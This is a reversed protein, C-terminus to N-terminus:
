PLGFGGPARFHHTSFFIGLIMLSNYGIHLIISPTLSGTMGRALSFVVGVILILFVHNWAHWYEPIHLGAFLVATAVVATRMGVAREILAFLLGRFVLEEVVPAVGIAFAGIAYSATTSNFLKELPFGQTDPRMSLALGVAVALVGGGAFYGAVQRATPKQWGLSKWFPQQHLLRALLFLFGLIFVYFVCQQILLFITDSQVLEVRVHWGTFPRLLVYGILVVLKSAVLAFPIFALFLLLDRPKWIERPALLVVPPQPRLFQLQPGDAEPSLNEMDGLM